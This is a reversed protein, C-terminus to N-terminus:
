SAPLTAMAAKLDADLRSMIQRLGQNWAAVLAAPTRTAFPIRASFEKEWLLDGSRSAAHFLLIRLRLVAAPHAPNRFDGYLDSVNVEASHSPTLASGPEAVQAFAGGGRLEHRLCEEFMRAPVVFFSAYPDREYSDQGTRYVFSQGEFLPSVAVRRLSLVNTSTLSAAM